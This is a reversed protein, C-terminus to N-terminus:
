FDWVQCRTMRLFLGLSVSRASILLRGNRTLEPPNVTLHYHYVHHKPNGSRSPMTRSVPMANGPEWLHDLHWTVRVYMLLELRILDPPPPGYRITRIRHSDPTRMFIGSDPNLFGSGSANANLKTHNASGSWMRIRFWKCKATKIFKKVSGSGLIRIRTRMVGLLKLFIKFM